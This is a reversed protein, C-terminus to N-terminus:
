QGARATTWLTRQQTDPSKVGPAAFCPGDIANALFYTEYFRCALAMQRAHQQNVLNVLDSWM